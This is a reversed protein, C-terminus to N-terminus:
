LLKIIDIRSARKKRTEVDLYVLIHFRLLSRDTKYVPNNVVLAFFKHPSLAFQFLSTAIWNNWDYICLTAIWASCPNEKM